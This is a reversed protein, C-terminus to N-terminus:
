ASKNAWIMRASIFATVGLGLCFIVNWNAMSLHFVPDSWPIEDCRVAKSLTQIHELIKDPDSPLTPVNCGELFSKWWKLEVGSHYFAIVANTLFTVGMFGMMVSVARKSQFSLIFAVLGLVILIGYPYRQIVCLNCPQLGFMYQSILALGLASASALSLLAPMSHHCRLIKKLM